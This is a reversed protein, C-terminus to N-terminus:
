AVQRSEIEDFLDNVHREIKDRIRGVETASKGDPDDLNWDRNEGAWGAPCIDDVSCGM